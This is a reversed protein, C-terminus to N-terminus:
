IYNYYTSFSPAGGPIENEMYGELYEMETLNSPTWDANCHFVKYYYTSPEGSLDDFELVLPVDGTLNMVPYSLPWGERYLQITKVNPDMVVERYKGQQDQYPQGFVSSLSVQILLFYTALQFSFNICDM